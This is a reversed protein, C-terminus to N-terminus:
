MMIFFYLLIRRCVRDVIEEDCGYNILLQIVDVHGYKVAKMLASEQM